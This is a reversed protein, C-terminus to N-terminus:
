VINMLWRHTFYGAALLAIGSLYLWWFDWQLRAALLFPIFFLLSLPVALFISQAFRVSAAPDEYQMYSFPLVLLTALPLAMIFGALEPRKGSLWSAGSIVLASLAVKLITLMILEM